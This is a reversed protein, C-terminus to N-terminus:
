RDQIELDSYEEIDCIELITCPLSISVITSQYSTMRSRDLTAMKLSWSHGWVCSDLANWQKVNLIESVICSLAM